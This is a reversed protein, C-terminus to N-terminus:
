QLVELGLNEGEPFSLRPYPTLTYCPSIFANKESRSLAASGAFHCLEKPSSTQPIGNPVAAGVTPIFGELSWFSSNEPAKLAGFSGQVLAFTLAIDRAEEQVVNQWMPVLTANCQADVSICEIASITGRM